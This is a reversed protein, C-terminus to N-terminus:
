VCLSDGCACVFAAAVVVVVAVVAAAVVVVVIVVVVVVFVVGVVVGGGWWRAAVVEGRGVGGFAVAWVVWGVGGIDGGVAPFLKAHAVGGRGRVRVAARRGCTSPRTGCVCVRVVRRAFHRCARPGARTRTAEHM